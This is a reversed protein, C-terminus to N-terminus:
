GVGEGKGKCLFNAQMVYGAGNGRRCKDIESRGRQQIRSAYLGFNSILIDRRSHMCYPILDTM